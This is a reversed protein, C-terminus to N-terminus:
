SSEAIWDGLCVATPTAPLALAGPLTTVTLMSVTAGATASLSGGAL